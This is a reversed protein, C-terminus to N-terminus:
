QCINRSLLPKVVYTVLSPDPARILELKKAPVFIKFHSQTKVCLM